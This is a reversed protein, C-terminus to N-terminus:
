VFFDKGTMRKEMEM